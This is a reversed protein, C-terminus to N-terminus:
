ISIYEFSLMLSIKLLMLFFNKIIFGRSNLSVRIIYSLGSGLRTIIVLFTCRSDFVGTWLFVSCSFHTSYLELSSLTRPTRSLTFCDLIIIYDTSYLSTCLINPFSINTVLFNNNESPPKVGFNCNPFTGQMSIHM